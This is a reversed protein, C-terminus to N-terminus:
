TERYKRIKKSQNKRSYKETKTLGFHKETNCHTGNKSKLKGSEYNVRCDCEFTRSNDVNGPVHGHM